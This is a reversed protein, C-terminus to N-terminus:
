EDLTVKRSETAEEEFKKACLMMALPVGDKKITIFEPEQKALKAGNYLVSMKYKWNWDIAVESNEFPMVENQWEARVAYSAVKTDIKHEKEKDLFELYEM